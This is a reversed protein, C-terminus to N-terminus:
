VTTSMTDRGRELAYDHMQRWYWERRELEEKPLKIDGEIVADLREDYMKKRTAESEKLLRQRESEQDALAKQEFHWRFKIYALVESGLLKFGGNANEVIFYTDYIGERPFERLTAEIDGVGYRNQFRGEEALKEPSVWREIVYRLLGLEEQRTNPYVIINPPIDELRTTFAIEGNHEYSYGSVEFPTWGAHYKLIKQNESRDNKIENGKVVRLNPQGFRNLGGINTLEEIFDKPIEPLQQYRWTSQDEELYEFM